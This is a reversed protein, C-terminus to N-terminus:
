IRSKEFSDSFLLAGPLVRVQTRRSLLDRTRIADRRTTRGVFAKPEPQAYDRGVALVQHRDLPPIEIQDRIGARPIQRKGIIADALEVELPIHIQEALQFLLASDRPSISRRRTQRAGRIM